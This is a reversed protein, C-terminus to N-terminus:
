GGHIVKHMYDSALNKGTKKDIATIALHALDYSQFLDHALIAYKRLKIEPMDVLHMWDRVYVADSWLQQRFGACLDNNLVMPKFARTGFGHFTHFQFGSKRLFIDVDAFMPQEKYLEVFEVETQIFLTKSLIHLANQFVSLEGGQIDIKIFDVDGIDAIDDLRTTNVPHKAVPSVVEALHQFKELLPTNPEYLSGTQVWNTEHFVAPKGDGIFYPFFRHPEGYEENIRECERADPEFGIIRAQGADVLAQYSPVQGGSGIDSAGIDLIGIQLDNEFFDLLSWEAM